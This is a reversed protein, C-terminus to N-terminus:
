DKKVRVDMKPIAVSIGNQTFATNIAETLDFKTTWFDPNACWVRLTINLSRDTIETLRIFPAPDKLVSKHSVAIQRVIEKVTEVDTDYEVHMSLSIRRTDKKSYNKITSALLAGNPVSVEINDPTQLVTYFIGLEVVTGSEGAAEIYDGARFPRFILLMIGGALNSLSGQLALALAAGCTALVTIVSAMEVGLIGVLAILLVVYLGIKLFSRIFTVATPDTHEAFKSVTYRKLVFRIIISGILLVLLSLLLRGAISVCIDLIKPWIEDWNLM